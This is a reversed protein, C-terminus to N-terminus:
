LGSAMGGATAASSATVDIGFIGWRRRLGARASLRIDISSNIWSHFCSSVSTGDEKTPEGNSKSSPRTSSDSSSYPLRCLMSCSFSENEVELDIELSDRAVMGGDNSKSSGDYEECQSLILVGSEMLRLDNGSRLSLITEEGGLSSQM